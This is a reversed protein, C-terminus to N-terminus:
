RGGTEKAIRASLRAGPLPVRRAGVPGLGNAARLQDLEQRLEAVGALSAMAANGTNVFKGDPTDIVLQPGLPTQELDQATFGVQRGQPGLGPQYSYAVPTAEGVARSVSGLTPMIDTKAREDSLQAAGGSIGLKGEVAEVRVLLRGNQRFLQLLVWWTGAAPNVVGITTTDM